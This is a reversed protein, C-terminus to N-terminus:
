YKVGAMVGPILNEIMNETFVRVQDQYKDTVALSCFHSLPETIIHLLEHVLVNDINKENIMPGNLELCANHYAQEIDICAELNRFEEPMQLSNEHLIFKIDWKPNLQLHKRWFNIKNQIAKRTLM